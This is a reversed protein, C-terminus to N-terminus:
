IGGKFEIVFEIVCNWCCFDWSKANGSLRYWPMGGYTQKDKVRSCNPGDCKIQNIESM